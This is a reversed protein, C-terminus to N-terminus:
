GNYRSKKGGELVIAFTMIKKSMVFFGDTIEAFPNKIIM